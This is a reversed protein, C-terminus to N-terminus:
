ERHVPVFGVREPMGPDFKTGTFLNVSLDTTGAFDLRENKGRFYVRCRVTKDQIAIPVLVRSYDLVDQHYKNIM